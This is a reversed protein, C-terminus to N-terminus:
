RKVIKAVKGRLDIIVSLRSSLRGADIVFDVRDTIEKPLMDISEAPNQGTLNASTSVFPKKAKQIIETFPHKPIRVGLSDNDSVHRSVLNQRKPKLIYTFPGPLKDIYSKKTHLNRCIWQKSQAIVSLPKDYRQKINRLEIVAKDNTADCGLGYVTDTPYVFLRGNKIERIISREKVDNIKITVAM